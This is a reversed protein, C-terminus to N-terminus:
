RGAILRTTSHGPVLGALLVKGGAAKVLDAGVVAAETYDAGKVLLDPLLTRILELPTDEGFLVTVAVGKLAGVVEARAAEGQVPRSPGKLRRVSADTNLALVLRDCSEAAQRILAVHGPHVLDFCGNTLGVSLGRKRWYARLVSLTEIDLLRGDQIDHEGDVALDIFLEEASVLATGVKGVVIGAAHNAAKMADPVSLGVAFSLALVAVVTDGAGSVDFVERAVTPLHIPEGAVPFYSMGKESRTLLVDAGSLRHAVAAAEGVEADTECPRGTALALEHRNPTLLSAGKYAGLDRKKPDVVVRKATAAAHALVATLVRETLAGKGYDSLIAVDCADLAVVANRIVEDQVEAPPPERREQDIRAIQQHHGMLRTKRVTPYDEALVIGSRDIGGHADLLRALTAHADDRGAVGVLCVRGGLHAVNAAVNAAGGPVARESSLRVVPVPAEPSIREVEGQLYVDLMLDGIVAIRASALNDFLQRM